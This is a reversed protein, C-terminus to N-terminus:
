DAAYILETQKTKKIADDLKDQLQMIRQNIKNLHGNKQQELCLLQSALNLATIIAIRDIGLVKGAEQVEQMKQNLYRAAQQLSQIETESCKIPYLKGLIEITTTMIKNTM